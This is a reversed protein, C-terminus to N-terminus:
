IAFEKRLYKTDLTLIKKEDLKPLDGEIDRIRYLVLLITLVAHLFTVIDVFYLIGRALLESDICSDYRPLRLTSM